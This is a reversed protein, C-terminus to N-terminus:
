LLSRTTLLMAPIVKDRISKPIFNFDDVRGEVELQQAYTFPRNNDLLMSAHYSKAHPSFHQVPNRHACYLKDKVYALGFVSPCPSACWTLQLSTDSDLSKQVNNYM